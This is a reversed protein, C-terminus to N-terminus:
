QKSSLTPISILGFDYRSAYKAAERRNRLDLKELINHVHVKVTNVSIVLREAIEQNTAGNGLLQLIESERTTLLASQSNVNQAIFQQTKGVQSFEEMIRATMKRSLAAEGNVVGHLIKVLKSIPINKLLYGAAGNRIASILLDDTENITLMVIKTDPRRVLIGGLADIGSGDPLSIDLLVLDPHLEISKEIAGRVTAAEGVVSIEPYNSLMSVLGERFLIHDDVILINLHEGTAQNGLYQAILVATQSHPQSRV